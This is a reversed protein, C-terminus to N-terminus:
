DREILSELGDLVGQWRDRMAEREQESSLNEQHFSIVTNSGSPTVRVQITSAKEFEKPQWTMRLHGGPNFVRIEGEANHTHYQAGEQWRLDESDGLWLKVGVDSMLTEWAQAPTAAFTKRVGIEWGVDKTFGVPRQDDSM